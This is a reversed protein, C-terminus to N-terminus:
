KVNVLILLSSDLFHLRPAGVDLDLESSQFDEAVPETLRLIMMLLASMFSSMCFSATSM